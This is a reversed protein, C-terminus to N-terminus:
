QTDETTGAYTTDLHTMSLTPPLTQKGMASCDGQDAAVMGHQSSVMRPRGKYDYAMASEHQAFGAHMHWEAVTACQMFVHDLLAAEWTGM